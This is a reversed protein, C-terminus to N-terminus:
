MKTKLLPILCRSRRNECRRCEEGFGFKEREEAAVAVVVLVMLLLLVQESFWISVWNLHCVFALM